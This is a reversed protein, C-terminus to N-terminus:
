ERPVFYLTTTTNFPTLIVPFLKSIPLLLCTLLLTALGSSCAKRRKPPPQSPKNETARQTKQDPMEEKRAESTAGDQDTTDVTFEIPPPNVWHVPRKVTRVEVPTAQSRGSPEAERDNCHPFITM